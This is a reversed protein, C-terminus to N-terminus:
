YFAPILLAIGLTISAIVQWNEGRTWDKRAERSLMKDIESHKLEVPDIEFHHERKMTLGNEEVSVEVRDSTAEAAIMELADYRQQQEALRREAAAHDEDKKLIQAQQALQERRAAVRAQIDM